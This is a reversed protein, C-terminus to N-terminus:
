LTSVFYVLVRKKVTPLNNTSIHHYLYIYIFINLFLMYNFYGSIAEPFLNILSSGLKLIRPGASLRSDQINGTLRPGSGSNFDIM